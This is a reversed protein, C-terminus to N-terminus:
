RHWYRYRGYPRYVVPRPYYYSYAYPAPYYVAPPAAVVAPAAYAYGLGASSYGVGFGPVGISIAFANHAAATGSTAVGIVLVAALMALHRKM